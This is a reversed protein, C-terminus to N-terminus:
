GEDEALWSKIIDAVQEPKDQAYKKIENEVHLKENEVELEVPDFHMAEKPMIVDDLLVDIGQMAEEDKKGRKRLLAIAIILLVLGGLVGAGIKIYMAKAKEKAAANAIEELDKKASNQATKDFTLGEISINDGRKEDYSIASVVLNKIKTRTEEDINGNLLVSTTVRKVEGPAKIVKSESKSIEYNTTEESHTVGSNNTTTAAASNTMNNDIPSQSTADTSGNSSDTIKHQSVITGNPAVTTSDTQIADFNLEANVTVRVDKYAPALVKSIKEELEKEVKNKLEQQKDTSSNLEVKDKDFLGTTLLNMNEDMVQVNEKPLNKVSGSLLAAIAKVQDSTLKQGSKMKLTVSASAPSSDKVFVSDESAVIHVRAGEVQPFSKITRELEGQLARQYEIKMEEDTAGFKSQDLLEFGKSGSTIEPALELRLKDVQEQPVSVSTGSAKWTVKKEDLKAGVTKLDNAELNAFLVEYKTSSTSVALIIIAAILGIFLISFAIKKGKSISKWKGLYKNFIESLKNM